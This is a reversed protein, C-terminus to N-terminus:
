FKFKKDKIYPSALIVLNPYAKKVLYIKEGHIVVDGEKVGVLPKQMPITNSSRIEKQMTRAIKSNRLPEVVKIALSDTTGNKMQGIIKLYWNLSTKYFIGLRYKNILEDEEKTGQYFVRKEKDKLYYFGSLLYNANVVEAILIATADNSKQNKWWEGHDNELSFIIISASIELVDQFKKLDTASFLTCKKYTCEFLIFLFQIMGELWESHYLNYKNNNCKILLRKQKNIFKHLQKVDEDDSTDEQNKEQNPGAKSNEEDTKDKTGIEDDHDGEELERERFLFIRKVKDTTIQNSGPSSSYKAEYVSWFDDSHKWTRQTSQVGTHTTNLIAFHHKINRLSQGLTDTSESSDLNSTESSDQSSFIVSPAVIPLTNSLANDGKDVVCAKFPIGHSEKLRIKVTGNPIKNQKIDIYGNLYYLRLSAGDIWGKVKVILFGAPEIHAQLLTVEFGTIFGGNDSEDIIEPIASIAKKSNRQFLNEFESDTMQTKVLYEVNYDNLTLAARSCNASGWFIASSGKGCYRFVKAHYRTKKLTEAARLKIKQNTKLMKEARQSITWPEFGIYAEIRLSPKIKLLESLAELDVDYFPSYVELLDVEKTELSNSIQDLLTIGKKTHLFDDSKMDKLWPHYEICKEFREMADMHWGELRSLFQFCEAFIGMTQKSYKIDTNNNYEYVAALDNGSLLGMSTANASSLIMKLSDKGALFIIKPHFAGTAPSVSVFASTLVKRCTENSSRRM